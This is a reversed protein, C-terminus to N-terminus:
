CTLLSIGAQLGGSFDLFEHDALAGGVGHVLYYFAIGSLAFLCEFPRFQAYFYTM